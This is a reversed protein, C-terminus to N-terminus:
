SQRNKEVWQRIIPRIPQSIEDPLHDPDFFRFPSHEDDQQEHGAQGRYDNSEYVVTVNHVQDGNPYIYYFEPGSFVGFLRMEGIELGSEELAERRATEETTEGLETSGGPIGWQHNDSRLGLLLRGHPDTVLVGAGVMVVPQHGIMKRLDQIYGM